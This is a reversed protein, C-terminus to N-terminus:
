QAIYAETVAYAALRGLVVAALLLGVQILWRSKRKASAASQNTGVAPAGEPNAPPSSRAGAVINGVVFILGFTVWFALGAFTAARGAQQAAHAEVAARNQNAGADWEEGADFRLTSALAEFTRQDLEFDDARASCSIQVAQRRGVLGFSLSRTGDATVTPAIASYRMSSRDLTHPFGATKSAGALFVNEITAITSNDALPVSLVIFAPSELRGEENAVFVCDV